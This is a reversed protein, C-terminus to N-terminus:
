HQIDGQRNKRRCKPMKAEISACQAANAASIRRFLSPRESPRTDAARPPTAPMTAEPLALPCIPGTPRAVMSTPEASCDPASAMVARVMELRQPSLTIMSFKEVRMKRLSRMPRIPGLPAPLVVKSRRSIPSSKGSVPETFSPAFARQRLQRLLDVGQMGLDRAQM